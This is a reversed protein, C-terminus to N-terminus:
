PSLSSFPRAFLMHKRLTRKDLHVVEYNFCLISDAVSQCCEPAFNLDKFILLQCNAM